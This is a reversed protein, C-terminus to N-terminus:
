GTETLNELRRHARGLMRKQEATLPGAQEGSVVELWQAAAAAPSKLQHCVIAAFNDLATEREHALAASRQELRRREIGGAVAKVLEEDRFPKTLYGYARAQMAEVASEISGYGTIVIMVIHPDLEAIREIVEMGNMGPMVLDVLAVSPRVEEALRLGQGGDGAVATRYGEAELIQRCGERMSEEDDIVLVATEDALETAM